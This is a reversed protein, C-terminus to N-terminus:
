SSTERSVTHCLPEKKAKGIQRPLKVRPMAVKEYVLIERHGLDHPLEFGQSGKYAMGCQEAAQLGQKREDATLNGKTVVLRGHKSLLPSAYEVLVPLSAVARAVVCGFHGRMTTGLTEVRESSVSLQDSLELGLLFEAVAATKKKVSDCLVGPRGTAIGLPIGPYGAGTGLDLFPGETQNFADLLLLSDVIHLTIGSEVDAIRTLNLVENKEIVLDLHVLLLAEEYAALRIGFSELEQHLQAAPTIDM